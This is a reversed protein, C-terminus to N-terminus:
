GGCNHHTLMTRCPTMGGLAVRLLHQDVDIGPLGGSITKAWYHIVSPNVREEM